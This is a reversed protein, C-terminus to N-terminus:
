NIECKLRTKLQEKYKENEGFTIFRIINETITKNNCNAEGLTTKNYFVVVFERETNPSDGSVVLWRANYFADELHAVEEIIFEFSDAEPINRVDKWDDLFFIALDTDSYGKPRYGHEFIEASSQEEFDDVFGEAAGLIRYRVKHGDFRTLIEDTTPTNNAESAMPYIGILFGLFLVSLISLLITKKRLFILDYLKLM